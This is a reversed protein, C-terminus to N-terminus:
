SIARALGFAAAAALGGILMTQLASRIVSTGTCRGKIAGFVGLAGWLIFRGMDKLPQITEEKIYRVILDRIEDVDRKMSAVRLFKRWSPVKM